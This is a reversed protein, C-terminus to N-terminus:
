DEKSKVLLREFERKLGQFSDIKFSELGFAVLWVAIVLGGLGLFLLEAETIGKKVVTCVLSGPCHSGYLNLLLIALGPVLMRWSIGARWSARCGIVTLKAIAKGIRVPLESKALVGQNWVKVNSLHGLWIGRWWSRIIGSTFKLAPRLLESWIIDPYLEVRLMLGHWLDILRSRVSRLRGVWMMAKQTRLLQEREIM